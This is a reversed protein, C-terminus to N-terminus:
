DEGRRQQKNRAHHKKEAIRREVSGRTPRTPRRPVPRIMAQAVLVRVKERADELNQLQDRAKQSTVLLRGDADLKNHCLTRLRGRADSHLGVIRSLDVRLEIKSSVKNVNQGGPGGARVAHMELAAAPITVGPAVDIPDAMVIRDLM